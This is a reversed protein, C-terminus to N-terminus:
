WRGHGARQLYGPPEGHPHSPHGDRDRGRGDDGDAAASFVPAPAVAPAAAPPAPPAPAPAPPAVVAPAPPVVEGRDEARSVPVAPSAFSAPVAGALVVDDDAAPVEAEPSATTGPRIPAPVLTRIGTAGPPGAEPAAIAVDAPPAVAGPMSALTSAAAIGASLAGAAGALAAFRRRRWLAVPPAAPAGGLVRIRRGSGAQDLAAQAAVRVAAPDGAGLLLVVEDPTLQCAVVGPLRRLHLELAGADM